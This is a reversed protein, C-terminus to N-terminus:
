KVPLLEVERRTREPVPEGVQVVLQGDQVVAEAYDPVRRPYVATASPKEVPTGNVRLNGFTVTVKPIQDVPIPRGYVEVFSAVKRGLVLNEGPFRLAGVFINEDNDHSYVFAGVWTCPKGDVVERDMRVVRYTYRGKKWEYPRRVSVFDGEHGSSQWLGGASPRIADPSREGWMSMLFGPGIKRLRQDRRTNGDAQTQIGGYFMTGSLQAIGLPAVYLNVTPPLDDSITADISYSEFARDEGIDWWIDILHWPPPAVDTDEAAPAAAPLLLFTLVLARPWARLAARIGPAARRLRERASARLNRKAATATAAAMPQRNMIM